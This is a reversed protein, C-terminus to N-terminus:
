MWWRLGHRCRCLDGAWWWSRRRCCGAALIFHIIFLDVRLQLGSWCWPLPFCHPGWQGRWGCAMWCPQMCLLKCPSFPWHIIARCHWPTISDVYCWALGGWDNIHMWVNTQLLICEVCSQFVNHCSGEMICLPIGLRELLHPRASVPGAPFCCHVTFHLCQLLSDGPLWYDVWWALTNYPALPNKSDFM